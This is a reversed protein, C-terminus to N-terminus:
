IHILSLNNVLRYRTSTPKDETVLLDALALREKTSLWYLYGGIDDRRRDRGMIPQLRKRPRHGTVLAFRSDLDFGGWLVAPVLEFLEVIQNYRPDLVGDHTMWRIVQNLLQILDSIDRLPARFYFPKIDLGRYWHQGCSERIPGDIFSKDQNTTFGCFLLAEALERAISTPVIIDDGYVSIKGKTGLFYAVTRAISYFLLSELEFTFGNGMSSFMANDHWVGDINVSHCRVSDLATFWDTPLVQRVFETSISDSASSLDLTALEGSISGQRALEGNQSQDNLDIGVRLLRRRIVDGFGKQLFVNIDPEKCAVRDITNNKPVTFLVNGRVLELTKSESRYHEAWLTDGYLHCWLVAAHPTAHAKERFKISPHGDKRRKSTTAGGSFSGYLDKPLPGIVDAAVRRLKVFFRSASVGDIVVENGTLARMRSNTLENTTEALQWKEIARSRRESASVPSEPTVYKSWLHDLLYDTKPEGKTTSILTEIKQLISDSESRSILRNGPYGLPRKPKTM